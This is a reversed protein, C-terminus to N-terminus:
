VLFKNIYPIRYIIFAFFYSAFFIGITLVPISFICDFSITTIGVMNLKEIFFPHIMYIAFSNRAVKKVFTYCIDTNNFYTFFTFIALSFLLVNWSGPSFYSEVCKEQLRSEFITKIIAYVLGIGGGIYTVTRMRKEVGYKRVYFGLLFYGLYGLLLNLDLKNIWVNIWSWKEGSTFVPVCFRTIVWLVLYYELVTKNDAIRRVIPLLLYFGLILFVFWMHYHGWLLREWSSSLLKETIDKGTVVKFVVSQFAFFASWIYFNLLLKGFRKIDGGKRPELLFAGSLMMFVPVAFRTLGNYITMVAYEKSKIDVVGWYSGSVHLLIIAICSISRLYDYNKERQNM